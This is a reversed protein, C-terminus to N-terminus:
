MEPKSCRTTCAAYSDAFVGSGHRGLLEVPLSKRRAEAHDIDPMASTSSTRRDRMVAAHQWAAALQGVFLAPNPPKNAITIQLIIGAISRTRSYDTLTANVDMETYSSATVAYAACGLAQV